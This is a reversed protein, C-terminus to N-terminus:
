RLNKKKKKIQFCCINLIDLILNTIERHYPRLILNVNTVSSVNCEPSVTTNELTLASVREGGDGLKIIIIAEIAKLILDFYTDYSM